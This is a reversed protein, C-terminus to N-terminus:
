RNLIAVESFRHPDQISPLSCDSRVVVRQADIELVAKWSVQEDELSVPTPYTWPRSRTTHQAKGLVSPYIIRRSLSEKYMEHSLLPM